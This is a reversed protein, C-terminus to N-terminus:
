AYPRTVQIAELSAFVNYLAIDIAAICRIFIGIHQKNCYIVVNIAKLTISCFIVPGRTVM